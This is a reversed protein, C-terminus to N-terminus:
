PAGNLLMSYSVTEVCNMVRKIWRDSFGLSIMMSRLFCWEVRDYAKSMDLKLAMLGERGKNRNNVAHICEFGIVINDTILGWPVFASETPSIIVKLVEKLRNAMAKAIIKYVVNCLSIPRFEEMKKPNQSKPILTIFTYNLPNMDRGENLAEM